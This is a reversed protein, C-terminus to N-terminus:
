SQATGRAERQVSRVKEVLTMASYPKQLFGALGKGAFRRVAEVENYGSSLIVRVDPRITKLQRFTEEGGMVPMTMDLLVLDIKDALVRYLEVAEKGNEALVVTFGHRELMAKASRRVIDEDDVVLVTESVAPSTIPVHTTTAEPREETAPFLLKFTTGQGLTSYVKIAGKHGRVIGLVAALGLGRGTVKTTFFPDFIRDMTEQTMGSGTDHVQLCVYDGPTIQAPVLVTAIYDEDVQQVGTTILVTGQ